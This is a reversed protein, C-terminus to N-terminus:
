ERDGLADGAVERQQNAVLGDIGPLIPTFDVSHSLKLDPRLCCNLFSHPLHM